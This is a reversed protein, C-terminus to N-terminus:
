FFNYIRVGLYAVIFFVCYVLIVRVIISIPRKKPYESKYDVRRSSDKVPDYLDRVGPIWPTWRILFPVGIAFFLFASIELSTKLIERM